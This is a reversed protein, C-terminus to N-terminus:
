NFCVFLCIVVVVVSIENTVFRILFVFILNVIRYSVSMSTYICANGFLFVTCKLLEANPTECYSGTM